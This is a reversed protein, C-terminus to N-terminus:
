LKLSLIHDVAKPTPNEIHLRNSTNYVWYTIQPNHELNIKHKQAVRTLRKTLFVEFCRKDPVGTMFRSLWSYGSDENVMTNKKLRTHPTRYVSRYESSDTHWVSQSSRASVEGVSHNPCYYVDPISLNNLSATYSGQGVRCCLPGNVRQPSPSSLTLYVFSFTRFLSLSIAWQANPELHLCGQNLNSGWQAACMFNRAEVEGFCVEPNTPWTPWYFPWTGPMNFLGLPNFGARITEVQKCIRFGVM